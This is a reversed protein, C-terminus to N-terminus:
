RLGLEEFLFAYDFATERLRDYRGSAGGHGAPDLNIKFYLPTHDTKLARLRAVYKAPEWYMVQSDNYSSKVLLAPYEKAELNDYPSYSRMYRYEAEVKPNGWEEFEGVTLPLSEDLMTNIVDVFPVSAIAAHFLDPRLNLVAGVLLGGASGGQIALKGRATYGSGILHEAAAIFDTFTNKKNMMRGQDHWKKGLEGGGRVHAIAYIVGRDILSFRDSNFTVPNVIGYSGYANLFLAGGPVLPKRYVLSIPVQAGDGAVAEIREVGYRAPDYGGLVPQRKVLTRQGTRLDTDFISNPTVLSSYRFRFTRTDFERNPAPGIDYAAEPLELKQSSSRVLDLVRLQPLGREREHLVLHDKFVDIDALMVEERHPIIEKWAARGPESVKATVLRFNRGTSNTRIYFLDGRHDLDYQHEPSRPEVVTMRAAGDDARFFRWESETHSGSGVFLYQRDRSRTVELSFKEDKEEFLLPDPGAQGVRHRYLQYPRKAIPDEIVYYLTRGAWAFSDVRPIRESLLEGTRLDKVHLDYQRFGTEDSSFALLTADDNPQWAGLGLFKKGEALQNVDLFVQEPQNLAAKRCLIPYQKGQETRSYWYWGSERFPPQDDTQKIRALMEGYLQDRLAATRQGFAADTYAAEARLYDLVAPTDKERLWFYDDIRKDGHVTVDKPVRRALPPPLTAARATGAPQQAAAAPAGRPAPTSICAVLSFSFLGLLSQVVLKKLPFRWHGRRPM